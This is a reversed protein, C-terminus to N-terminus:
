QLRSGLAHSREEFDEILDIVVGLAPGQKPHRQPRQAPDAIRPCRRLDERQQSVVLELGTATGRRRQPEIGDGSTTLARTPVSPSASSGLTRCFAELESWNM